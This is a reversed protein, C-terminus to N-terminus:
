QCITPPDFYSLDLLASYRCGFKSEKKARETMTNCKMVEDVHKLEKLEEVLPLLFTNIEKPESPGPIIGLLLMNKRKYRLHRPLNMVALYIVGLSAVTHSYPQFWDINLVLGYSFPDSLFPTGSVNLFQKWLKGDYLDRVFRSSARNRWHNCNHVFESSLLLSSTLSKYCYIKHPHLVKRGSCLEISKLLLANCPARRSQQPHHPYQVFTCHKSIQNSGIHHWSDKFLYRKLCRPCLVFKTFSADIGMHKQAVLRSKPFIDALIAM